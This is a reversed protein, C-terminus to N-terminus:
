DNEMNLEPLKPVTSFFLGRWLLVLPLSVGVSGKM